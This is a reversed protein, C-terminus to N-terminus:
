TDPGSCPTVCCRGSTPAAPFASSIASTSPRRAFQLGWFVWDQAEWASWGFAVVMGLSYSIFDAGFDVASVLNDTNDAKEHLISNQLSLADLFM